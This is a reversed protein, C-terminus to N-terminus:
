NLDICKGMPLLSKMPFSCHFWSFLSFRLVELVLQVHFTIFTMFFGSLIKRHLVFISYLIQTCPLILFFFFFCVGMILKFCLLLINEVALLACISRM